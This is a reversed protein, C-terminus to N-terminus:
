VDFEPFLDFILREKKKIISKLEHTYYKGWAQDKARGGEKPFIKKLNLVFAIEKSKWGIDLLFNYLGHNLQDTKIFHVKFMDAKYTQHNVYCKYDKDIKALVEQYNRFFFRIFDFTEIGINENKKLNVNKFKKPLLVCDCLNIYEGFDLDPFNPLKNKIEEMTRFGFEEETHTKWWGFEYHSVLSDYPNSITSLIPKNRHEWPIDNCTGHMNTDIFGQIRNSIEQFRLVKNKVRKPLLNDLFKYNKKYRYLQKLVYTVFSGGTKPYHIYVFDDTIIM